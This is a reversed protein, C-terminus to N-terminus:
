FPSKRKGFPKAALSTKQPEMKGSSNALFANNDERRKTSVEVSTEKLNGAEGALIPNPNQQRPQVSNEEQLRTPSPSELLFSAMVLLFFATLIFKQM